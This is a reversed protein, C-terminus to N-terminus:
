EDDGEPDDTTGLLHENGEYPICYKYVAAVCYYPYEKGEDYFNFFNARWVEKNGDRVLVRDFPEFSYKQSEPADVKKCVFFPWCYSNDTLYIGEPSVREIIHTGGRGILCKLYSAVHSSLWGKWVCDPADMMLHVCDGAKLGSAAQAEEYSVKHLVFYPVSLGAGTYLCVGSSHLSVVPVCKGVYADMEHTWVNNWGCEGDEASRLVKVLDGPQIECNKQADLYVRQMESM